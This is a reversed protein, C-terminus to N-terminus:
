SRAPQVRGRRWRERSREQRYREPSSSPYPRSAAGPCACLAACCAAGSWAPRFCCTAPASCAWPPWTGRGPWGAACFRPRRDRVGPPIPSGCGDRRPICCYKRTFPCLQPAPLALRRRVQPYSTNFVQFGRDLLFGARQDTRMRGGVEDDAELVQVAVGAAALDAACALGALGAGSHGPALRVLGLHTMPRLLGTSWSPVHIYRLKRFYLSYLSFDFKDASACTTTIALQKRGQVNGM